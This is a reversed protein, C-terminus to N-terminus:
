QGELATDPKQLIMCDSVLRLKTCTTLLRVIAKRTTNVGGDNWHVDDFFIIGGAKVKPLYLEVDRLAPEESHNGDIHLLDISGDPFAGAEDEAKSRRLMVFNELQQHEVHAVCHRYVSDLDLKSWWTRHEEAVMSELAADRTWPDIGVITGRGNHKLALAQPILSSGGFVGIEVCLEPRRSVITEILATAKEPSCWGQIAPLLKVAKAILEELTMEM